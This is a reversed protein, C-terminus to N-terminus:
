TVADTPLEVELTSIEGTETHYKLGALSVAIEKEMMRRLVLSEMLSGLPGFKTQFNQHLTVVAGDGDAEVSWDNNLSKMPMPLGRTVDYSYRRGEEWEVIEEELQGMKVHTCTRRAGVGGNAETLSRSETITPAWNSVGGFDALVEWTKEASADIQVRGTLLPM